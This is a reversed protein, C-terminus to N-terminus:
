EVVDVRKSSTYLVRGEAIELIHVWHTIRGDEIDIDALHEGNYPCTTYHAWTGESFIKSAYPISRGKYRSVLRTERKLQVWRNQIPIGNIQYDTTITM